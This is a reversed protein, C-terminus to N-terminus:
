PQSLCDSWADVSSIFIPTIRPNVPGISDSVGVIALEASSAMTPTLSEIPGTFGLIVGIKIEDTSAQDSQRDCGM